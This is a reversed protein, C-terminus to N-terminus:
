LKKITKTLLLLATILVIYLLVGDVTPTGGLITKQRTAMAFISACVVFLMGAIILYLVSLFFIKFINDTRQEFIEAKTGKKQFRLVIRRAETETLDKDIINGQNDKVTYKM